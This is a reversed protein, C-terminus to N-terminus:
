RVVSYQQSLIHDRVKQAVPILPRKNSWSLYIKRIFNPNSIKIKTVPLFSISPIEPIITLGLNHSVFQLTANSEHAEFIINPAIKEKKFESIILNNLGSNKHLLILPFDSIEFLSVEKKSSLPHENPVILYLEQDLIHESITNPNKDVCLALDINGVNLDNILNYHLEQFFQFTIKANAENSKFDKILSPLFIHSLSYIYGLRVTGSATDQMSQLHKVGDDISTLAINVYQLFGEGHNSLKLKKDVKEFLNISLEKELQAISYSLSPQSVHLNKAARTYHLVQALERFHLLQVLTLNDGGLFSM